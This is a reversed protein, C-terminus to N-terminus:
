AMAGPLALPMNRCIVVFFDFCFTASTQQRCATEMADFVPESGLHEVFQVITAFRDQSLAAEGHRAMFVAAIEWCIGNAMPEACGACVYVQTGDEEEVTRIIPRVHCLECLAAALDRERQRHGSLDIVNNM